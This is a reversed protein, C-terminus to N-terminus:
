PGSREPGHGRLLRCLLGGRLLRGLRSSRLRLLAEHCRKRRGEVGGKHVFGLIESTRIEDQVVQLACSARPATARSLSQSVASASPLRLIFLRFFLAFSAIYRVLARYFFAGDILLDTNFARATAHRM